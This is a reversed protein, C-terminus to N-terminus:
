FKTQLADDEPSTDQCFASIKKTETYVENLFHELSYDTLTKLKLTARSFDHGESFVTPIAVTICGASAGAVIGTHSDEIVICEEPKVGLLKAAHLYIYPKPKNVGEPDSYEKLDDIGSLILDFGETLGLQNLHALVAYRAAASAVAVKLGHQDQTEILNRAFNVTGHIPPIGQALYKLFHKNKHMLLTNANDMRLKNAFLKAIVAGSTGAHNQYENLHFDIGYGRLTDQWSCFHAGESDVLTGDCDFIIAKIVPDSFTFNLM